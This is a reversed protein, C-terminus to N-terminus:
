NESIYIKNAYSIDKTNYLTILNRKGIKFFFIWYPGAFIKEKFSVSVEINEEQTPILSFQTPRFFFSKRNQIIQNLDGFFRGEQISSPQSYFAFPTDIREIKQNNFYAVRDAFTMVDQGDHTVFVFTTKRAKKLRTLYAIVNRKIHADLHAFPEDLLVVKSEMILARALALRQKEGGSLQIAKHNSLHTLEFLDLLELSIEHKLEENLHNAKVRLNEIVSHYIDLGFEQNVLQIEPHGPILRHSPGPVLQKGLWVDGSLPDLFGSMIQMLTSKGAGSPGVIGFIEGKNITLSVDDLINREGRNFVINKLQIM